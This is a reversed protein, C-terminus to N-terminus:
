YKPIVGQPRTITGRIASPLGLPRGFVDIAAAEGCDIGLFVAKARDAPPLANYVAAVQAAMEPWGYQDAFHQPLVGARFVPIPERSAM